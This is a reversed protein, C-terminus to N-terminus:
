LDTFSAITRAAKVTISLGLAAICMITAVDPFGPPLCHTVLVDALQLVAKYSVTRTNM